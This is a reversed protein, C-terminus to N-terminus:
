DPKQGALPDPVARALIRTGDPKIVICGVYGEIVPALSGVAHVDDGASAFYAGNGGDIGGGNVLLAEHGDDLKTWETANETLDLEPVREALRDLLVLRDADTPDM